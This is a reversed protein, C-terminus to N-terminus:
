PFIDNIGAVYKAFHWDHPNVQDPDSSNEPGCCPSGLKNRDTSGCDPCALLSELWGAYAMETRAEEMQWHEEAKRWDVGERYIGSADFYGVGLEVLVEECDDSDM